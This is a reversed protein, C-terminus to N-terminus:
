NWNPLKECVCLRLTSQVLICPIPQCPSTLSSFLPSTFFSQSADLTEGVAGAKIPRQETKSIVVCQCSEMLPRPTHTHTASLTAAPGTRFCTRRESHLHQLQPWFQKVICLLPKTTSTICLLFQAQTHLIHRCTYLCSTKENWNLRHSIIPIKDLKM